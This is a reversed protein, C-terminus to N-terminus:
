EYADTYFYYEFSLSITPLTLHICDTDTDNFIRRVIKIEFNVEPSSFFFFFILYPSFIDTLNKSVLRRSFNINKLRRIYYLTTTNTRTHGHLECILCKSRRRASPPKKIVFFIPLGDNM